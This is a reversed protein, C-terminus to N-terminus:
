EAFAETWPARTEAMAAAGGPSREAIGPFAFIFPYAARPAPALYPLITDLASLLGAPMANNAITADSMSNDIRASHMAHELTMDYDLLFSVIQAVAPTIKRGGADGIAIGRGDAREILTRVM